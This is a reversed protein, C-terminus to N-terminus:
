SSRMEDATVRGVLRFAAWFIPNDYPRQAAADQGGASLHRMRDGGVLKRVHRQTQRLASAPSQGHNRLQDVFELVM